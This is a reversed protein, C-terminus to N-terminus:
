SDHNKWINEIYKRNKILASVHNNDLARATQLIYNGKYNLNKFLKILKFFDTDGTGLPVTTGKYFRDKLHVNIISSQFSEFEVDPDFGLSASNGTDYNIGFTDPNLQCIFRENENPLFDTEFAIRIKNIKLVPTIENFFDFLILEQKKNIVRGNDVLPLVILKIGTKTHFNSKIVM